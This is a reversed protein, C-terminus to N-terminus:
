SGQNLEYVIRLGKLVLDPDIVDLVDTGEAVLPAFGGTAIVSCPGLEQRLRRVIGEVLGTYGVVLGVQLASSTDRGLPSHPQKLPVLPLLATHRVLAESVAALGPAIAGGVFAGEASVVNFTTATGFDVVIVPPGYLKLAALAGVLRDSGVHDPQPVQIPMELRLYPDFNLPAVGLYRQCAAEVARAIQPVVSSLCAGNICRAPLGAQQLLDILLLGIEDGTRRSDSNITWRARLEKDDFVALGTTTNGIDIALLM